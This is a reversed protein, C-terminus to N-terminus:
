AILLAVEAVEGGAIQWGRLEAAGGVVPGVVVYLADPHRAADIDTRSPRAETRVHSHVIAWFTEGAEDSEMTLRVLDRADVEFRYPSALANRTPVYRLPSGGEWPSGSGIVVGCAELPAESTAHALIADRIVAPLPLALLSPGAKM